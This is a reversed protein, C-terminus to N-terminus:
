TWARRWWPSNRVVHEVPNGNLKSVTRDGFEFILPPSKRESSVGAIGAHMSDGSAAVITLDAGRYIRHMNHIQEMKHSGDEQKICYRDVWLYRYGIEKTVRIADLVTKSWEPEQIRNTGWVYSLALWEWSVDAEVVKLEDCDILRMGRVAPSKDDCGASHQLKCNYLWQKVRWPNYLPSIPRLGLPKNSGYVCAFVYKVAHHTGLYSNTWNTFRNSAFLKAFISNVLEPQRFSVPLWRESLTELTREVCFPCYQMQKKSADINGTFSTMIVILTLDTVDSGLDHVWEKLQQSSLDFLGVEGCHRCSYRSDAGSTADTSAANPLSLAVGASTRLTTYFPLFECRSAKDPSFFAAM